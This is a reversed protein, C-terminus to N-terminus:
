GAPRQETALRLLPEHNNGREVAQAPAKAQRHVIELDAARSVQEALLLRTLDRGKSELEVRLHKVFRNALKATLAPPGLDLGLDLEADGCEDRLVVDRVHALAEREVLAHGSRG